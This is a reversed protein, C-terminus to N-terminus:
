RGQPAEPGPQNRGAESLPSGSRSRKLLRIKRLMADAVVPAPVDYRKNEIDHKLQTVKTRSEIDREDVDSPGRLVPMEDM